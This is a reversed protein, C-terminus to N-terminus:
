RDTFTFSSGSQEISVRESPEYVISSITAHKNFRFRKSGGPAITGQGTLDSVTVTYSSRNYFTYLVGKETALSQGNTIGNVVAKETMTDCGMFVLSSFGLLLFLAYGTFFRKLM